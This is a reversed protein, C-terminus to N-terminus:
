AAAPATTKEVVVTGDKPAVTMTAACVDSGELPRGSAQFALNSTIQAKAEGSISGDETVLAATAFGVVYVRKGDQLTEKYQGVLLLGLRNDAVNQIADLTRFISAKDFPRRSAFTITGPTTKGSEYRAYKDIDSISNLELTESTTGSRSINTFVYGDPIANTTGFKLGSYAPDTLPNHNTGNPDQALFAVFMQYAFM